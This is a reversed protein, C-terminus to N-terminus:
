ESFLLRKRIREVDDKCNEPIVGAEELEELENLLMQTYTENEENVTQSLEKYITESESFRKQFLLAHALKTKALIYTTDLELAQRASQEAQTYNQTYLYNQSLAFLTEVVDVSYVMYDLNKGAGLSETVVGVEQAFLKM